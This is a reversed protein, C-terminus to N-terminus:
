TAVKNGAVTRAKKSGCGYTACSGFYSWCDRHHLTKCSACAVLSGSLADSCVPCATKAEEVVRQHTVIEIGTDTANTAADYFEACLQLFTSITAESSNGRRKTIALTGRMWTLELDRYTFFANPYPMRYLKLIRMQVIPTLVERVAADSSGSIIFLQDFERNGVEIDQMGMLKGLTQMADEYRLQCRFKADPWPLRLVMYPHKNRTVYELVGRTAGVEVVMQTNGFFGTSLVTGKFRRAINRVSAQTSQQSLAIVLAVGMILVVMFFFQGFLAGNNNM